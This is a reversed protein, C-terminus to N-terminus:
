QLLLSVEGSEGSGDRTTLPPTIFFGHGGLADGRQYIMGQFPLKTGNTHTFSGGFLGNKRNITLTYSTDLDVVKSVRDATTINVAKHQVEALGGQSFALTANGDADSASLGAMVSAGPLAAYKAAALDMKLGTPWGNAYVPVDLVPRVWWIGTASMDSETTVELGVQGSLLGGNNYLPVFLPWTNDKSLRSSTSIVTGDPLTGAFTVVGGPTVGVTAFGKGQPFQATTFGGPQSDPEQCGMRATFVGDSRRNNEVSLYDDPVVVSRGNYGVRDANIASVATTQSRLVQTVTGTIKASGGPLPTLDLNFALQLAPKGFRPIVLSQQRYIGFRAVGSHDFEGVLSLVSGDLTLKGSFAGDTTVTLNLVGETTLRAFAGSEDQSKVLGNYSGAVTTFPNPVFHATLKAGAYTFKLVPNVLDEEPLRMLSLVSYTDLGQITPQWRDFLFGDKPKATLTYTRGSVWRPVGGSDSSVTGQGDITLATGTVAPLVKFYRRQIISEHGAADVARIEVLHDGYDGANVTAFWSGRTPSLIPNLEGDVGVQRRTLETEFWNGYDVRVEVRSLAIDDSATGRFGLSVPDQTQTIVLPVDPPTQIACVPPTNDTSGKLSVNALTMQEPFDKTGLQKTTPASNVTMYLTGSGSTEGLALQVHFAGSRTGPSFNSVDVDIANSKQEGTVTFTTGTWTYTLTGTPIRAVGEPDNPDLETIQFVAKHATLSFSSARSLPANHTVKNLTFGVTTEETIAPVCGEKLTGVVTFTTSERALKTYSTVGSSSASTTNLSELYSGAFTAQVTLGSTPAQAEAATLSVGFSRVESFVPHPDLLFGHGGALSGKQFIVGHFDPKTSDGGTLHGGFRGTGREIALDIIRGKATVKTVVDAPSINVVDSTIKQEGYAIEEFNLVANSTIPSSTPRVNPLVSQNAIATFKAGVLDTRILEPWGAPYATTSMAPRSWCLGSASFDSEDRTHDLEVWGSVFGSMKYLPVFLGARLIGEASANSVVTSSTFPAGDALIGSLSLVGSPSIRATAFGDGKPYDNERFGPVQTSEPSDPNYRTRARFLVTFIGDSKRSGNLTLYEDPVVRTTGNFFAKDAEISSVLVTAGGGSQTVTGTLRARDPDGDTGTLTLRVELPPKGTRKVLFSPEQTAGFRAIGAGDFTGTLSIVQTNLTLKGSFAGAKDVSATFVGETGLSPATGQESPASTSAKILGNYYGSAAAFVNPVQVVVSAVGSEVSGATNSVLCTYNGSDEVSEMKRTYSSTTAGEIIEGNKRWQYRLTTVNTAVVQLKLTGGVPLGVGMPQTKITPLPPLIVNLRAARCTESGFSDTVMCTFNASDEVSSTVYEYTALLDASEDRIPKGNKCWLYSLPGVGAAGVSFHAQEGAIVVADVPLKTFVLLRAPNSPIVTNDANTVLCDYIGADGVQAAPLRLVPNTAGAIPLAPVGKRWQYRLNGLGLAEVSFQVSGGTIVATSAPQRTIQGLTVTVNFTGSNTNGFADTASLTVRTTGVPFLSGSAPSVTLPSIAQNDFAFLDSYDSYTVVAGTPHTASVLRDTILTIFPAATDLSGVSSAVAITPSAAVRVRLTGTELSPLDLGANWVIHKGAGANVSVGIDGSVTVVPVDFTIGGDKSVSLEIPSNGYLDYYVDVLDTGPRQSFTVNSVPIVTVTFTNSTANGLSDTATVTVTTSGIPFMTGSAQSYTLSPSGVNDTTTALPYNVTAGQTSTANVTINSPVSLAPAKTDVSGVASSVRISEILPVQRTQALRFGIYNTALNPATENRRGCCGYSADNQWNGGRVVRSVGTSAGKPDAGAQYTSSQWDWCWQSVNGVMDYLGYGNAQFSGVPSTYPFAGTSYTPHYIGAVPSLDYSYSHVDYSTDFNAQDQSITDGLPFRKGVLGGRAAIEWESETPLRYGNANWDCVVLPSSGVRYVMGNLQYCPTLGDMESAANAWKLADYWSVTQVPHDSAKGAGVSLDTYGHTSAWSRVTDWQAKTTDNIAILFPSLTITQVPANAFGELNDGRQYTGAPIQAYGSPIPSSPTPKTATVRAVLNASGNNPWDVGANWVIHKGTGASVSAGTDGSASVVPINFTAGGDNSISLAVDETGVLDYTVDVLGTGSRQAFTVNSVPSVTVTFTGTGVSNMSDTATVTVTTIGIPFTTGSVQSYTLTSAALGDSVIATAPEYNVLAGSEDTAPVTLGAPVSVKPAIHIPGTFSWNFTVNGRRGLYGDVAFYYTTGATATVTLASAGGNGGDDNGALFNLAGMSPGGNYAFLYTDFNSGNTDVRLPGNSPATFKYWLSAGMHRSPEGSELSAASNSGTFQGAGLPLMETALAFSDNAPAANALALNGFTIVPGSGITITGPKVVGGSVGVNTITGSFNTNGVIVTVSSAETQAVFCTFLFALLLHQIKRFRGLRIGFNVSALGMVGRHRHCVVEGTSDTFEM